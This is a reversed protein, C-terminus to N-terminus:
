SSCSPYRWLEAFEIEEICTEPIKSAHKHISKSGANAQIPMNSPNIPRGNGSATFNSYPHYRRQFAAMSRSGTTMSHPWRSMLCTPINRRYWVEVHWSWCSIRTANAYDVLHLETATLAFAAWALQNGMASKTACIQNCLLLSCCPRSSTPRLIPSTSVLLFNRESMLHSFISTVINERNIAIDRDPSKRYRSTPMISTSNEAQSIADKSILTSPAIARNPRTWCPLISRSTSTLGDEYVVADGINVKGLFVEAQRQRQM